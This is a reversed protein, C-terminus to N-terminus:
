RVIRIISSYQLINPIQCAKHLLTKTNLKDFTLLKANSVCSQWHKIRNIKIKIKIKIQDLFLMIGGGFGIITISKKRLPCGLIM